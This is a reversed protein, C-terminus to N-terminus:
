LAHNPQLKCPHSPTILEGTMERLKLTGIEHIQNSYYHRAHYVSCLRDALKYLNLQLVVHM